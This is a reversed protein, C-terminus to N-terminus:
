LNIDVSITSLATLFMPNGSLNSHIRVRAKLILLYRRLIKTRDRALSFILSCDHAFIRIVGRNAALNQSMTKAHHGLIPLNQQGDALNGPQDKKESIKQPM